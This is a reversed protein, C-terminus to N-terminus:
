YKITLVEECSLVRALSIVDFGAGRHRGAVAEPPQRLIILRIQTTVGRRVWAQVDIEHSLCPRSTIL